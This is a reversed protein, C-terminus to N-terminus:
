KGFEKLLDIEDTMIIDIWMDKMKQFIWTDNVTYTVVQKWVNKAQQVVEPTMSVYPALFYKSNNELSYIDQVDYTDRGFIIDDQESLVKRATDSYSIFIVKDQMNMNKVTEIADLTQQEWDKENVVKIELFYYDFLWDIMELMEQLTRYKEWNKLTCNKSIWDYNYNKIKLNFCNSAYFYDWHAVINQKDKTYSVDFEIWRAWQAKATLFSELSNEPAENRSWQHWILVTQGSEYENTQDWLEYRIYSSLYDYIEQNEKKVLSINNFTFLSNDLYSITYKKDIYYRASTIWRDRNANWDFIDNYTKDLQVKWHWVLKKISNYFDTHQIINDNVIGPQIWSWVVTAASKSYWNPGLLELEWEKAWNMMRHDWVIVLIGSEFFWMNQLQTYFNYLQEDSYQLALEETNGVPTSYPKHFSITQLWIFYKWTQNQVEQLTREYLDEDPASDFTYKKNKEFNEEWIIKQFWAWSLFARQNLFDLTASSIFTTNYWQTNLYQPLAMMELKYGTYTESDTWVNILPVVGYLTSIHATDSTMWNAIFHTFTIWDNQIQDFYPMNDYWWANKSNIAWLSEAFVLIINLDKEDWNETFIYDTYEVQDEWNEINPDYKKLVNLNITIINDSFEVDIDFIKVPIYVILYCFVFVSFMITLFVNKNTTKKNWRQVIFFLSIWLVIFVIISILAPWLFWSSWNSVLGFIEPITVRSQFFAITFIDICFIVLLLFIIVDWILRLKRKKIWHNLTVLWLWLFIVALDSLFYSLITGWPNLNKYSVYVVVCKIVLASLLTFLLTRWYLPSDKFKNKIFKFVSQRKQGANIDNNKNEIM